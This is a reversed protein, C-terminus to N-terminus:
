KRGGEEDDGLRWEEGGGKNDGRDKQPGSGTEKTEDETM